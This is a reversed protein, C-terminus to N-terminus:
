IRSRRSTVRSKSPFMSSVAERRRWSSRARLLPRVARIRFRSSSITRSGFTAIVAGHEGEFHAVLGFGHADQIGQLTNGPVQSTFTNKQARIDSWVARPAAEIGKGTLHRAKAIAETAEYFWKKPQCGALACTGGPRDSRDIVAVKLGAANLDYAATQGGTGSGVVVVDFTKM